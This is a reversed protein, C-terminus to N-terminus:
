SKRLATFFPRTTKNQPRLVKLFASEGSKLGRWVQQFDQLSSISVRDIEVIIDNSRLEAERYAASNPAISTIMVGRLDETDALGLRGLMGPTIDGLTIGMDEFNEDNQAEADETRPHEAIDDTRRGLIISFSLREKDRVIDITVHEDPLMNGIIAPLQNADTLPTGNIGTIIDGEQIGAEEAASGPAIDTVQAAGRSVGLAEALSQPVGWFWVGLLGREVEGSGILQTIVNDVVDVPIAFGIGLNVGTPSYIASNIGVLNGRLDVLPGGSNGPNIAADTQIFSAFNNLVSLGSSSRQLASVIGATVTNDLDESLPSGFALVWQGVRVDDISGYTVVPLDEADVRIVALDSLSDTGVVEGDLFRGDALRIELADAQDIVHHNTIIYGDSRVIVGSGLGTRVQPSSNPANFFFRGFPNGEPLPDIIRESHIQVVSPGVQAAVNIFAQELEMRQVVSAEQVDNAVSATGIRDGSGFLNAGTTAFLIGAAFVAVLLLAIPTIHRAQM